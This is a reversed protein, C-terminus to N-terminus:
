ETSYRVRPPTHVAMDGLPSVADRSSRTMDADANRVLAVAPVTVHFANIYEREGVWSCLATTCDTTVCRLALMEHVVMDSAQSVGPQTAM